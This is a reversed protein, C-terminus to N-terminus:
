RLTPGQFGMWMALHEAVSAGLKKSFRDFPSEQVTFDVLEKEGVVDRAVSSASGLGDILGLQLAQEGSWVLGSFLEPHDKDKLREGRGQKVSAIFQRHTTDLVSQWFQTEEPKQPQFPDLFSKHEGSTYTRREVGLKEMTGVFGYGAATVGISGVLSAKDAYIQDAASAIYYAGSAGLDSIVAYVKTDPHLGRLRRIEDYVYGSQVPSGGPSNIRLVVGKVKSDEFAARLGTVINDASASEKDAIMGTVEILATYGAGRTATKEMDMLPTFLALAVLLYVFTLFKFFIGWRRSRRQEQVGALLTKELLKWSKDDASDAASKSPAKWEDSM